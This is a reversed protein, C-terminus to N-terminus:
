ASSDRGPRARAFRAVDAFSEFPSAAIGEAACWEALAGRALVHDAVQAACRDSFGDGVLVVEYGAARVRRAHDGKCNGCRGCGRGANPFEPIVRGAEFRLRNATRPIAALGAEELLAQIYFDFGDSVVMVYDGRAEAERAFPAFQPDIRYRAAFARAEPEHVRVFRCETETLERSGITGRKWAELLVDREAGMEPSFAAMFEAGVDRPAVTGDFDCLFARRRTV